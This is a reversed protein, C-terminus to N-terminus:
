PTLRRKLRSRAAGKRTSKPKEGSSKLMVACNPRLKQDLPRGDLRAMVLTPAVLHGVERDVAFFTQPAVAMTSESSSEM